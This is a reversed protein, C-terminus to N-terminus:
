IGMISKQKFHCKCQWRTIKKEGIILYHLHKEVKVNGRLNEFVEKTTLGAPLARSGWGMWVM